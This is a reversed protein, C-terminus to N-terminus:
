SEFGGRCYNIFLSNRCRRSYRNLNACFFSLFTRSSSASTFFTFPLLCVLVKSRIYSTSKSACSSSYAYKSALLTSNVVLLDGDDVSSCNTFSNLMIKGFACLILLPLAVISSSM